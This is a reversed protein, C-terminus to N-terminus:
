VIRDRNTKRHKSRIFSLIVCYRQYCAGRFCHLVFLTYYM